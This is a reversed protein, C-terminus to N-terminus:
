GDTQERLYTVPRKEMISRSAALGVAVVLMVTTLVMVLSSLIFPHYDIEFKFMCVWYTGAQAMGMAPLSSLLGILLNELAFVNFVFKKGAGLIKYYVAEVMREARTAYVASVLILLGAGISFMSFGQIIRSLRRMLRAFASITQSLDIVSINQFQSVIRTQLAGLQEPPVKLAAFYTRPARALVKEPFVFYFFPSFTSRSRTRISAIRAKLPVGQIKFSITDGVAMHRMRAVTDLISVQLDPWEKQFLSKGNLLTEDELLHQRYTLNFVRSFNDRRKKREKERNVPQGNIATVRARVIPYLTVGAGVEDIFADKQDKQIDVFYANPATEPYSQVFAADLNKEIFYNAFIVCLSVTLTVITSRTANGKRFLGKVAQRLTLFAIRRRGITWLLTQTLAAAAAILVGIGGVFYLGFRVDHMHRLVLVFFFIMVLGGAIYAPGRRSAPNLDRRFIMMPRLDKIRTLPLYSFVTVVVGGLVVAEAVSSWPIALSLDAPLFAALTRGLAKQVWIGCFIGMGTGAAGLLGVLGIFHRVIYGNTAGVAKMTAITQQGEKILAALTGQIGVGAMLLIFLGVLKLFFFVNDLFRKVRTGATQFTNVQEQDKVAVQKLQAALDELREPDQVKLLVKRQIRSGKTVLGLAELDKDHVFVRPGFSFFNLPRDPESVVVDAITLSTYGANLRDGVGAGLRDLLTQAVICHGPLLVQHFSRGSALAVHGYFPYGPGVVKLGALVSSNEDSARVVSLFRHVDARQVHGGAALQDMARNLPVSIPDYSTIIIDAAHLRRSDNLLSRGVGIAFGNFATLTTLSLAVCLVFLVAQRSSRRAHRIIFSLQGMLDGLSGAM